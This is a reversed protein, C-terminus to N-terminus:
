SPQFRPYVDQFCKFLLKEHMCLSKSRQTSQIHGFTHCRYCQILNNQMCSWAYHSVKRCKFCKMNVKKMCQKAMHGIMGCKFCKIKLVASKNRTPVKKIKKLVKCDSSKHGYTNCKLCNDYFKKPSNKKKETGNLKKKESGNM